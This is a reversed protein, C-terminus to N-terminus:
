TVTYAAYDQKLKGCVQCILDATVRVSEEVYSVPVEPAGDVVLVVNTTAPTVKTANSDRYNYNRCIVKEGDSYILEGKELTEECCGGLPIFTEGGASFRLSIDGRIKDSDYAGMPLLTQVSSINYSDVVTNINFVQGNKLIRRILAESSPRTKTVDLGVSRYLKRYAVVFPDQALTDMTFKDKVSRITRDWTKMLLPNNKEILLNQIGAVGIKLGPFRERVLGDIKVVLADVGRTPEMM